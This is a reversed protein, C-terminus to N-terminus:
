LIVNINSSVFIVHHYPTFSSFQFIIINKGVFVQHYNRFLTQLGGHEQKLQMLLTPSILKAAEKLMIRGSLFNDYYHKAFVENIVEQM